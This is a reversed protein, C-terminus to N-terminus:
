GIKKKWESLNEKLKWPFLSHLSWFSICATRDQKSCARTHLLSFSSLAGWQRSISFHQMWWSRHFLICACVCPGSTTDKCTCPRPILGVACLAQYDRLQNNWAPCLLIASLESKIVNKLPPGEEWAEGLPVVIHWIRSWGWTGRASWPQGRQVAGVQIQCLYSLFSWPPFSVMCNHTTTTAPRGSGVYLVVPSTAASFRKCASVNRASALMFSTHTAEHGGRSGGYLGPFMQWKNPCPQPFYVLVPEKCSDAM